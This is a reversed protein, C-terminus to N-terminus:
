IESTNEKYFCFNHCIKLISYSLNESYSRLTGLSIMSLLCLLKECYIQLSERHKVTFYFHLTDIASIFIPQGRM